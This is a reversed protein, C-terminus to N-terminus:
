KALFTLTKYFLRLGNISQKLIPTGRHDHDDPSQYYTIASAWGEAMVNAALLCRRVVKPGKRFSVHQMSSDKM